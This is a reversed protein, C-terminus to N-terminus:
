ARVSLQWANSGRGTLWADWAMVVVKWNALLPEVRQSYLPVDILRNGNERCAAPVKLPVFAHGFLLRDKISVPPAVLGDVNNKM